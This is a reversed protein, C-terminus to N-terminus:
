RVVIKQVKGNLRMVYVGTNLTSTSITMTGNVNTNMIHRGMLDFVQLEGEGKVIIDTGNQYAFIDSGNEVGNADYSLKVIFRDDADAPSGIFSYERDLLMDVDEGTLRDIVHLYSFEGKTKYSLTYKGMTKAKFSLGFMQTDDGMTAIAYNESDQPIYLMPIEANRHNIKNLGEGKDFLAYTVDEYQSNSVVFKIYDNNADTEKANKATTSFTVSPDAGNAKVLVGQMPAISGSTQANWSGDTGLTYYGGDIVNTKNINSWDVNYTLPNGIINLGKVDNDTENSYSLNYTASTNISGTFTVTQYEANRYLYGRGNEFYNFASTQTVKYNQWSNDAENYRFLDYGSATTILNSVTPTEGSIDASAIPSSVLYWGTASIETGAGTISKQVTAQVYSSSTILQGGDEIILNAAEENSFIGTVNLTGGNKVTVVGSYINMGGSVTRVSSIDTDSYIECDNDNDKVYLSVPRQNSSKQYCAFRPNSNNYQLYRTTFTNSVITTYYDEDVSLSWYCNDDLEGSSYVNNADVAKLYVPSSINEYITWGNSSPGSIVFESVGETQEIVNDTIKVSVRSRIGGDQAGMAYPETGDAKTGVIIYHKGAVLQETSTVLTYTPIDEWQAYFTINETITFDDSPYYDIGTGDSVTNWSSFVKGSSATFTNELVTVVSNYSYPSNEDTMEGTGGNANYSVNFTPAAQTASIVSFYENNDYTASVKIYVTRAVGTNETVTYNLTTNEDTLSVNYFWDETFPDSCELDDYLGVTADTYGTMNNYAVTTTAASADKEIDLNGGENIVISPLSSLQWQAYLTKDATLTIDDEDNYSAEGPDEIAETWYKFTYGSKEFQNATLATEVGDVVIQNYTESNDHTGGNGNFTITRNPKYTVTVSKFYFAANSASASVIITGSASGNFTQTSVSEGWGTAQNQTGFNEGGVTVCINSSSSKSGTVVQIQTIVGSIGSTSISFAVCPSSGSGLQWGYSDNYNVYPYKGSKPQQTVSYSWSINYTSYVDGNTTGNVAEPKDNSNAIYSDVVEAKTQGWVGQPAELFTMLLGLAAILFTFRKKMNSKTQKTLKNNIENM